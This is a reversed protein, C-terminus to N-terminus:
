PTEDSHAKGARISWRVPLLPLIVWLAQTAMVMTPNPWIATLACRLGAEAALFAAWVITLRRMLARFGASAWCAEFARAEAATPCTTDRALYFLTPRSAALSLAFVLALIGTVFSPRVLAFWASGSLASGRLSLGTAGIVLPSLMNIRRRRLLSLGAVLAPLIASAVLAHAAPPPRFGPVPRAVPKSAASDRTAGAHRVHRRRMMETIEGFQQAFERRGAVAPEAVAQTMGLVMGARVSQRTGRRLGIDSERAVM